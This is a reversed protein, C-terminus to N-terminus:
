DVSQVDAADASNTLWPFAVRALSGWYDIFSVTAGSYDGTILSEACRSDLIKTLVAVGRAGVEQLIQFISAENLALNAVRNAGHAELHAVVVADDSCLEAGDCDCQEAGVLAHCLDPLTGPRRWQGAIVCSSELPNVPARKTTTAERMIRGFLGRVQTRLGAVDFRVPTAKEM